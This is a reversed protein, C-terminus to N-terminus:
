LAKKYGLNVSNDCFYCPIILTLKGLRHFLYLTLCWIEVATFIAVRNNIVFQAISLLDEKNDQSFLIYIYIFLASYNLKCIRYGHRNEPPVNFLPPTRDRFNWLNHGM